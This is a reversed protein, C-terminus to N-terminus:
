EVRPRDPRQVVPPRGRDAHIILAQLVVAILGNLVLAMSIGFLSVTLGTLLGGMALGSQMSFQFLSAMKGRTEDVASEQLYSSSSINSFTLGTGLVVMIVNLALYNKNLAGAVVVFGLSLAVWAATRRRDLRTRSVFYLAVAGLLGGLGLAAMSGGFQSVEAHFMDKVLVSCFVMLPSAFLSTIFVSALPVRVNPERFVKKLERWVSIPSNLKEGEAPKAVKKKLQIGSKPYIWYLSIFFPVYSFANAGFCAKAGYKAIILGALAPGLLRSLNFQVSNFAVAKSIEKKEVISPIISQFAPMSLSDTAGVIFSTVIIMWTQLLDAILLTLLLLVCAFQISQCILIIRKRNARDALVGGWLTFVWAPSNLAFGDLGVLFSSHSLSLIVWPQAVQQMWTGMNSLLSAVWYAAYRRTKLLSVSNPLDHDSMPTLEDNSFEDM